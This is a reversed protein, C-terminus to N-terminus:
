EPSASSLLHRLTYLLLAKEAQQVRTRLAEVSDDPCVPVTTQTLIPGRDYEEDVLHVTAGSRLNRDALVASHVRDGYFGEGGYAPLLAPHTNIVRGACAQLTQPGLRKMYGALVVWNPRANQLAAAIAADVNDPDTRASIHRCPIGAQRARVLAGSTSNNSIVLVVDAHLSDTKRADKSADESAHMCADILAQLTTGGGSALVALRPRRKRTTM